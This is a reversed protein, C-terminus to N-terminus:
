SGHIPIRYCFHLHLGPAREGGKRSRLKLVLRITFEQNKGKLTSSTSRTPISAADSCCGTDLSPSLEDRAPGLESGPRDEAREGPRSRGDNVREAGDGGDDRRM